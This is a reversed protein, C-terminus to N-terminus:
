SLVHLLLLLLEQGIVLRDHSSNEVRAQALAVQKHDVMEALLGNQAM